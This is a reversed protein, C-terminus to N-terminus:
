AQMKKIAIPHSLLQNPPLNNSLFKESTALPVIFEGIAHEGDIMIPGAFGLPVQVVGTFNEINGRTLHPDISYKFLHEIDKGSYNEIFKQRKRIIRGSYDDDNDRPIRTIHTTDAAIADEVKISLKGFPDAKFSINIRHKEESLSIGDIEVNLIKRLPFDIGKQEIDDINYKTGNNFVIKVKDLDIKQEDIQIQHISLM